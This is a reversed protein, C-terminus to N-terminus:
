IGRPHAHPQHASNKSPFAERVAQSDALHERAAFTLAWGMGTSSYVCRSMTTGVVPGFSGPESESSSFLLGFGNRSGTHSRLYASGKAPTCASADLLPMWCM